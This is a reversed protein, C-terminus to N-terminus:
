STCWNESPSKISLDLDPVDVGKAPNIALPKALDGRLVNLEVDAVFLMEVVSGVTKGDLNPLTGNDRLQPYWYPLQGNRGLRTMVPEIGGLQRGLLYQNVRQVIGALGERVAQRRQSKIEPM